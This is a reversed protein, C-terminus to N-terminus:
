KAPIELPRQQDLGSDVIVLEWDYAHKLHVAVEHPVPDANETIMPIKRVGTAWIRVYVRVRGSYFKGGTSM